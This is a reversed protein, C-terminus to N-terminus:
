SARVGVIEQLKLAALLLEMRQMRREAKKELCKQVLRSLTPSVSELPAPDDNIIEMRLATRTGAPFARKGSLMEYLIAGLSFIDSRPDLDRGTVQEPSFYPSMPVPGVPTLQARGDRITVGAPQLVAYVRGRSHMERLAEALEIAYRLAVSVPLPGAALYDALTAPGWYAPAPECEALTGRSWFYRRKV